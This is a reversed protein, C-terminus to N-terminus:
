TKHQLLFFEVAEGNLSRTWGGFTLKAEWKVPKIYYDLFNVLGQSKSRTLHSSSQPDAWWSIWNLSNQDLVKEIISVTDDNVISTTLFMKISYVWEETWKCRDAAFCTYSGRVLCYLYKYIKFLTTSVTWINILVFLLQELRSLNNANVTCSIITMVCGDVAFM